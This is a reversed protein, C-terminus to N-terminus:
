SLANRKFDFLIEFYKEVLNRKLTYNLLEETITFIVPKLSTDNERVNNLKILLLINKRKGM